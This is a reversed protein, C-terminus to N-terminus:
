SINRKLKLFILNKRVILFPWIFYIMLGIGLSVAIILELPLNSITIDSYLVVANEKRYTPLFLLIGCILNILIALAFQGSGIREKFFISFFSYCPSKSVKDQKKNFVVILEDKEVRKDKLYHNFSAYELTRVNKLSSLDLFTLEFNNPVVNICFCSKVTCLNNNKMTSKLSIPLNRKENIKIDYIITSKSIGTKRTSISSLPPEVFFRFYINAKNQGEKYSSLDIKIKLIKKSIEPSLELPLICLPDREAFEHIVGSLNDGGDLSNTNNVSDNFIFKSNSSDKLSDYLDTVNCTSTLWPLYLQLNIENKDINAVNLEGGFEILASSNKFEWSCIHFKLFEIPAKDETLIFYSNDMKLRQKFLQNQTNDQNQIHDM